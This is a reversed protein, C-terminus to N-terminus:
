ESGLLSYSAGQQLVFFDVRDGLTDFTSHLDDLINFSLSNFFPLVLNDGNFDIVEGMSCSDLDSVFVENLSNSWHVSAVDSDSSDKNFTALFRRWGHPLLVNVDLAVALVTLLVHHMGVPLDVLEQLLLCLVLHLFSLASRSAFKINSTWIKVFVRNSLSQKVIIFNPSNLSIKFTWGRFVKSLREVM